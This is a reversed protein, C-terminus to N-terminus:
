VDDELVVFFCSVKVYDRERRGERGEKREKERVHACVCVYLCFFPSQFSEDQIEAVSQFIM